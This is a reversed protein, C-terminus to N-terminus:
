EMARRLVEAKSDLTGFESEVEIFKKWLKKKTPFKLVAEELIYKATKLAGKFLCNQVNELWIGRTQKDRQVQELDALNYLGYFMLEKVLANAVLQSGAKEAEIAEQLWQDRPLIVNSKTL